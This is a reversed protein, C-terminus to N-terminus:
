PDDDAKEEEPAPHRARIQSIHAAVMHGHGERRLDQLRYIDGAVRKAAVM